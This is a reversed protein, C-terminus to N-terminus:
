RVCCNTILKTLGILFNERRFFNLNQKLKSLNLPTYNEISHRLNRQDIREVLTGHNFDEFITETGRNKVAVFDCGLSLGELLVRPLGESPSNLCLVKTKVLLDRVLTSNANIYLKINSAQSVLRRIQVEQEVNCALVVAFKYSELPLSLFLSLLEDFGKDKSVRGVYAADYVRHNDRIVKPDGELFIDNIPMPLFVCSHKQHAHFRKQVNNICVFNIRKKQTLLLLSFLRKIISNSLIDDELFYSGHYNIIFNRRLVLLCVIIMRAQISNYGHIHFLCKTTMLCKLLMGLSFARNSHTGLAKFVKASASQGKCASLIWADSECDISTYYEVYKSAINNSLEFNNKVAVPLINVIKM